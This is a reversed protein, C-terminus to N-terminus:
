KRSYYNLDIIARGDALNLAPSGIFAAYTKGQYKSFVKGEKQEFSDAVVYRPKVRPKRASPNVKKICTWGYAAGKYFQPATLEEGCLSCKCISM